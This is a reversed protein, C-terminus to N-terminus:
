HFSLFFQPAVQLGVLTMFFVFICFCAFYCQLRESFPLLLSALMYMGFTFERAGLEICAIFGILLLASAKRFPPYFLCLPLLMEAAWVMNSIAIILLNESYYTGSTKVGEQIQKVTESGLMVSFLQEFRRSHTIAYTFFMGNFYYGYLCKQLGSWFLVAATLSVQLRLFSEVEDSSTSRLLILLFSSIAFLYLHNASIPFGRILLTLYVAFIMYSSIRNTAQFFTLLLSLLAVLFLVKLIPSYAGVRYVGLALEYCTASCLMLQFWFLATKPPLM